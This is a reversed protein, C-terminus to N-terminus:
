SPRVEVKRLQELEPFEGPFAPRVYVTKSPHQEFYKQDARRFDETVAGQVNAIVSRGGSVQEKLSSTLKKLKKQRSAKGM